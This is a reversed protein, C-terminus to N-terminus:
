RALAQVSASIQFAQNGIIADVTLFPMAQKRFPFLCQWSKLPKDKWHILDNFNYIICLYLSTCQLSIDNTDSNSFLLVSSTSARM